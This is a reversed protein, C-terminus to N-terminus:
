RSAPLRIWTKGPASPCTDFASQAEALPFESSVVRGPSVTGTNVLETSWRFDQPHDYTLSGRLVESLTPM